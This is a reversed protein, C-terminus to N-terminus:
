VNADGLDWLWKSKWLGGSTDRLSVVNSDQWNLYIHADMYDCPNTYWKALAISTDKNSGITQFFGGVYLTDRFIALTNVEYNTGWDVEKWEFGNWRAINKVDMGGANTICGAAYLEGHYVVLGDNYAECNVGDGLRYWRDGDWRAIMNANVSDIANFAGAVYLSQSISDFHMAKISQGYVHGIRSWQNGDWKALNYANGVYASDPWWGAFNFNGGAILWKGLGFDVVELSNVYDINAQHRLSGMNLWSSDNLAFINRGHKPQNETYNGGVFLNDDYVIMDEINDVSTPGVEMWISDGIQKVLGFWQGSAKLSSGGQYLEGHYMIIADAYGQLIPNDYYTTWGSDWVAFRPADFTDLPTAVSDFRGSVYLKEEFAYITRIDGYPEFYEMFRINMPFWQGEVSVQGYAHMPLVIITTLLLISYVDRM